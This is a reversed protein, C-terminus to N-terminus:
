FFTKYNGLVANYKKVLDVMEPSTLLELEEMRNLNYSSLQYIFRELYAPHSMMDCVVDEKLNELIREFNELSVGEKYFDVCVKSQPSIPSEYEFGGRMPYPYKAHLKEIVPQLQELTHIHHHSDLHTIPIGAAKVKEIQAELETYIEDLNWNPRNDRNMMGEENILSPANTIPKGCTINLHVGVGLGPNERYLQVAHEFGPMNAMMTTSTVIGKKYARLIGYNVSECFGFDDANVILKKM